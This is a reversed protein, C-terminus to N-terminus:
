KGVILNEPPIGVRHPILAPQFGMPRYAVRQAPDTHVDGLLLRRHRVTATSNLDKPHRAVAAPLHQEVRILQLEHFAVGLSMVCDVDVADDDDDGTSVDDTLGSVNRFNVRQCGSNGHTCSYLM